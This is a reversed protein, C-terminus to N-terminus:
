KLSLRKIYKDLKKSSILDNQANIRKMKESQLLKIRENWQQIDKNFKENKLEVPEPLKDNFM